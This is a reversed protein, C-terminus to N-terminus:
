KKHYEKRFVLFKEKRKKALHVILLNLCRRIQHAKSSASFMTVLTGNSKCVIKSRAALIHHENPPVKCFCGRKSRTKWVHASVMQSFIQMIEDKWLVGDMTISKQLLLCTQVYIFYWLKGCNMWLTVVVASSAHLMSLVCWSVPTCGPIPLLCVLVQTQHCWLWAGGPCPQRKTWVSRPVGCGGVGCNHAGQWAGSWLSSQVHQHLGSPDALM